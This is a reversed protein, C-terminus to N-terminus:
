EQEEDDRGERVNSFLAEVVSKRLGAALRCPQKVLRTANLEGEKRTRGEMSGPVKGQHCDKESRYM